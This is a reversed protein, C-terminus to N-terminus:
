SVFVIICHVGNNPKLKGTYSNIFWPKHQPFHMINLSNKLSLFINKLLIEQTNGHCFAFWESFLDVM